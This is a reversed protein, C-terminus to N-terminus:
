MLSDADTIVLRHSIVVADFGGPCSFTRHIPMSKGLIFTDPIFSIYDVVKGKRIPLLFFVPEKLNTWYRNGTYDAEGELCYTDPKETKRVTLRFDFWKTSTTFEGGAGVRAVCPWNYSVNKGVYPKWCSMVFLLCFLVVPFGKWITKVIEGGQFSENEGPINRPDQM